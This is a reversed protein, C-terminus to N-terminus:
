GEAKRCLFVTIRMNCVVIGHYCEFRANDVDKVIQKVRDDNANNAFLGKATDAQLKKVAEGASGVDTKIQQYEAKVKRLEDTYSTFGQRNMTPQDLIQKLNVIKEKFKDTALGSKQVESEFRGLESKAAEVLSKVDVESVIGKNGTQAKRVNEGYRQLESITTSLNNKFTQTVIAGKDVATQYASLMTNVKNFAEVYKKLDETPNQDTVILKGTNEDTGIGKIQNNREQQKAIIEAVQNNIETYKASQVQLAKNIKEQDALQERLAKETERISSEGFTGGQYKFQAGTIRKADTEDEHLAKLAYDFKLVEDKANKATVIFRELAGDVNNIGTVEVNTKGFVNEFSQKIEKLEDLRMKQTVDSITANEVGMLNIVNGTKKLSNNNLADYVQQKNLEKYTQSLEKVADTANKASETIKDTADQVANTGSQDFTVNGINLTIQKSIADVKTQVEKLNLSNPNFIVPVNLALDSEKEIRRKIALWQTRINTENRGDFQARINFIYEM